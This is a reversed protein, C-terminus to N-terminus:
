RVFILMGKPTIINIDRVLPKGVVAGNGDYVTHILRIRKKRGSTPSYDVEGEEGSTGTKITTKTADSAWIGVISEVKAYSGDAPKWSPACAGDSWSPSYGISIPPLADVSLVNDDIAVDEGAYLTGDGAYFKFAAKDYLGLASDSARRVPVLDHILVGSHWIKVSYLKFKGYYDLNSDVGNYYSAFLMLPGGATYDDAKTFACSAGASWTFAPGSFAVTYKEDSDSVGPSDITESSSSIGYYPRLRYTSNNGADVLYLSWTNTSATDGRACWIFQASRSGSPFSIEAEIKDQNPTPIYDDLVIRGNKGAGSGSGQIYALQTYSDSTIEAGESERADVVIPASPASEVLAGGMTFMGTGAYFKGAAVDYLGVASDLTRVAPVLDHILEESQWVKLSYLKFAGYNGLNNGVGNYYSAFLMLPGGASFNVPDYSQGVGGSWVFNTGEAMVRYKLDSDKLAGDVATGTANGYDLRLKYATASNANVYLSWTATTSTTGCACWIQQASLTGSPFSVMAEIKDSNATPTYDDILIRGSAGDGQIFTYQTYGSPVVITTSTEVDSSQGDFIATMEFPSSPTFTVTASDADIGAPLTGVWRKFGNGLGPTASVTVPTGVAYWDTGSQSVTGGVGAAITGRYATAEWQWELRRQEAPTPHVYTFSTEVGNSVVNGAEDYLKWGTCSYQASGAANTASAAGCSVPFSVGSSLGNTEGYIPSPSGIDSPSGTVRLIGSTDGLVFRTADVNHNAVIEEDTLHRSYLRICYISGPFHYGNKAVRTGIITKSGETRWYNADSSALSSGNGVASVPVGSTYRVSVSNTATGSSFAFTPKSVAGAFPIIFYTGDALYSWGLMLGSAEPAQLLVQKATGDRSAYVIEMTGNKAATFTATTDTASLTGYSTATGDFTMRDDGVTVGTLTFERGAVLDKWVMANDDHPQGAGANEIGDWCAILGEQVYLGTTGASAVCIAAVVAVVAICLSRQIHM